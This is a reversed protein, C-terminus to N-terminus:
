YDDDEDIICYIQFNRFTIKTLQIITRSYQNKFKTKIILFIGDYFITEDTMSTINEYFIKM